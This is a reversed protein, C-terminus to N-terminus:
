VTRVNSAERAPTATEVMIIPWFRPLAKAGMPPLKRTSDKPYSPINQPMPTAVKNM